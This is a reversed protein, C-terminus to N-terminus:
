QYLENQMYLWQYQLCTPSHLVSTNIDQLLIFHQCRNYFTENWYLPLLLFRQLVSPGGCPSICYMFHNFWSVFVFYCLPSTMLKFSNSTRFGSTWLYTLASDELASSSSAKETAGQGEFSKILVEWCTM